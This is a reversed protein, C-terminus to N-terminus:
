RTGDPYRGNAYLTKGSETKVEDFILTHEPFQERRLTIGLCNYLSTLAIRREQKEDSDFRHSELNLFSVKDGETKKIAALYYTGLKESQESIEINFKM